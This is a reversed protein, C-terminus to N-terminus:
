IRKKGTVATWHCPWVLEPNETDERCQSLFIELEDNIPVGNAIAWPLKTTQLAEQTDQTMMRAIQADKANGHPASGTPIIYVTEVVDVFGADVLRTKLTMAISPDMGFHDFMKELGRVWRALCTNSCSPHRLTLHLDMELCSIYGGPKLVRNMESLYGNWDSIGSGM